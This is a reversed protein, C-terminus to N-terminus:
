SSTSIGNERRRIFLPAEQAQEQQEEEAEVNIATRQRTQWRSATVVTIRGMCPETGPHRRLLRGSFEEPLLLAAEGPTPRMPNTEGRTPPKRGTPRQPRCLTSSCAQDLSAESQWLQRLRLLGLCHRSSVVGRGEQNHLLDRLRAAAAAKSRNYNRRRQVGTQRRLSAIEKERNHTYRRYQLQQQQSHQSHPSHNPRNKPLQTSPTLMHGSHTCPPHPNKPNHLLHLSRATRHINLPRRKRRHQQKPHPQHHM